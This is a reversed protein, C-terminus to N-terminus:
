VLDDSSEEEEEEELVAIHRKIVNACESAGDSNEFIENGLGIVSDQRNPRRTNTAQEKPLHKSVGLTMGVSVLTELARESNALLDEDLEIADKEFVCVVTSGGFSFYGFEDGKKLSDGENKTFTISGVMTAGIAVFAMKGFEESSIICVVRKNETFVNCYKSNVAIPNVTYLPGPIEIFKGVVGSIPVHFRHYDQPALRFIVLSGEGFKSSYTEDGLLGRVSFKRGKIWFRKSDDESQFAMLRSDAGCVAVHDNDEYAIPRAGPKLERIFFENFTKFHEIPYKFEDVNIRDEFFDIFNPINKASDRTKMNEGQKDSMRQLLERTGKDILTLGLRSQYIARLSLVIKRDILEEVIRKTRRDFVLIHSANSGSKLGVDYSSIHTWESLKFMWGYSAQKETLFGGTMIQNGTGEDFCLSVHIMDNLSDSVSLAEGCVPCRSILVENEQYTALLNALEDASVVGNGDHDAKQFLEELKHSAVKNGFAKMLDRFEEQSLHGDDNYDMIALLRRTFSRQTVAPDEASYSVVINGVSKTKTNPDFLKLTERTHDADPDFIDTLDIECYGVLNSKSLRNTEFVSIRVIRPGNAELAVKKESKWIPKYTDNSTVTKFTQEGLSVCAFWRDKSEMEAEILEICAIGSFQDATYSKKSKSDEDSNGHNRRLKFFRKRSSLSHEEEPSSDGPVGMSRSVNHGM